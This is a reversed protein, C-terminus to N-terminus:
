KGKLTQREFDGPICMPHISRADQKELVRTREFNGQRFACLIFKPHTSTSPTAPWWFYVSKRWSTKFCTLKNMEGSFIRDITKRVQGPVASTCIFKPHCSKPNRSKRM